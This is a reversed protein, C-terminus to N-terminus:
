FNGGYSALPYFGMAKEESVVVALASGTFCGSGSDGVDARFEPSMVSKVLIALAM